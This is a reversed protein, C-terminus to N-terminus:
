KPRVCYFNKADDTSGSGTHKAVQPYPCLPRTMTVKKTKEDVGSAIITDPAIGKEVWNELVKVMDFRNAGVGGRCHGMGPVMFLRYFDEVAPRSGMKDVVNDYYTPTYGAPALGDAWGYYELLKGGRAKFGSLDPNTADMIAATREKLYDMDHNYDFKSLDYKPDNFVSRKIYDRNSNGGEINVDKVGTYMRGWGGESGPTHGYSIRRGDPYAPGAYIRRLATVQGPTLCDAADGSKCQLVVPDFHCTMPNGIIGDKIGDDADCQAVAAATVMPMKNGPLFNEPADTSARTAWLEAVMLDTWNAGPEGAIIGDYDEPYRQAEMMGVRGGGSCADFYTKTPQQTYFAATVMKGKVTMEHAGRYGLDIFRGLDNWWTEDGTKHGGDTSMMAYGRQIGSALGNIGGPDPIENLDLISGYNISGLVGGPTTGMLKGNWGALPMWIEVNIEPKVVVHVRCFSPLKEITNRADEPKYTGTTIAQAATVKANPLSLTALSECSVAAKSGGTDSKAAALAYTSVSTCLVASLAACRMARAPLIRLKM